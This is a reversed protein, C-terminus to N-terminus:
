KNPEKIFPQMATWFPQPFQIGEFLEFDFQNIEIEEEAEQMSEIAAKYKEWNESEPTIQYNGSAVEITKEADNPDEKKIMVATGLEKVIKDHQAYFQKSISLLKDELRGLWYGTKSKEPPIIVGKIIEGTQNNPREKLLSLVNLVGICKIISVKIM